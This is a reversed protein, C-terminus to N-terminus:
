IIRKYISTRICLYLHIMLYICVYVCRYVDINIINAVSM